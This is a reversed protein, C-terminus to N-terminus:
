SHPTQEWTNRRAHTWRLTHVHLAGDCVRNLAPHRRSVFLVETYIHQHTRKQSTPKEMHISSVRM